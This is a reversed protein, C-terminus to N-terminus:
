DNELPRTSRSIMSSMFFTFEVPELMFRRCEILEFMGIVIREIPRDFVAGSGLLSDGSKVDLMYWSLLLCYNKTM